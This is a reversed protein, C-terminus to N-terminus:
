NHFKKLILHVGSFATVKPSKKSRVTKKTTVFYRKLQNARQDVGPIIAAPLTL